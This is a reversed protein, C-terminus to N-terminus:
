INCTPGKFIRSKLNCDCNGETSCCRHCAASLAQLYWLWAASDARFASGFSDFGRSEPFRRTQTAILAFPFAQLPSSLPTSSVLSLSILAEKETWQATQYFSGYHQAGVRNHAGFCGSVGSSCFCWSCTITLMVCGEKFIHKFLQSGSLGMQITSHQPDVVGVFSHPWYPQCPRANIICGRIYEHFTLAHIKGIDKRVTHWLVCLKPYNLVTAISWKQLCFM